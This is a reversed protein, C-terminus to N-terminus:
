ITVETTILENLLEFSLTFGVVGDNNKINTLVISGPTIEPFRILLVSNISNQLYSVYNLSTNQFFFKYLDVRLLNDGFSEYTRGGIFSKIKEIYIQYIDEIKNSQGYSDFAIVNGGTIM